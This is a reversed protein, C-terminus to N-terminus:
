FLQAIEQPTLEVLTPRGNPCELPSRCKMLQVYLGEGENLALRRQRSVASRGATQAIRKHIEALSDGKHSPRLDDLIDLILDKVPVKELLRPVSHLIFTHSGFPQIQLGLQHFHTLHEKLCVAEGPLFELTHPILLQQVPLSAAAQEQGLLKEYLIRAHAARQDCVFIKGDSSSLLLYGPLTGIVHLGPYIPKKEEEAPFLLPPPAPEPKFASVPADVRFKEPAPVFSFAFSEKRSEFQPLGEPFIEPEPLADFMAEKSHQLAEEVAMTIVERLQLDQRLRVERKQPHVNVDVLTGDLFLFLVFLPHRGTPLATGYAARVAQSILSSYVARHNIFLYQGTRNQRTCAPMGVYGALRYGKHTCDIPILAHFFEAGLVDVIREGMRELFGEQSSVKAVLAKEQNNILEFRIQPHALAELSVVKLVEAADYTPSRQFKKRVPVNFFLSKVEFTTGKSRAAPSCQLVKGGDITILTGEADQAACTLLTMKSISAISPVAEGRFGMTLVSHLDDMTRIKSTAHRELCLLADDRNMGCGDDTIRILQRGGGRIEVTIEKAGADIANEVLEKVVSAPNEIVEGAAIQNITHEDLVRIKSSM